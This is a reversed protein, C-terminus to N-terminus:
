ESLSSKGAGTTVGPINRDVKPGVAQYQVVLLGVFAFALVAALFYGVSNKRM